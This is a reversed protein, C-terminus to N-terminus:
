RVAHPTMCSPLATVTGSTANIAAAARRRRRAAPSSSPPTLVYRSALTTLVTTVRFRGAANTSPM